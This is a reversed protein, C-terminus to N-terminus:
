MEYQLFGKTPRTVKKNEEMLKPIIAYRFNHQNVSVGMKEEALKQLTKFDCPVGQEKLVEVIASFSRETSVRTFSGKRKVPKKEEIFDNEKEAKSANEKKIDKELNQIISDTERKVNSVIIDKNRENYLDVYGKIDLDDLGRQELKDLNDLREKLGYYMETLKRREQSIERMMQYCYEKEERINM